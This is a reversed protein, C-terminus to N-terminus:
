ADPLPVCSATIHEKLQVVANKANKVRLTVQAKDHMHTRGISCLMLLQVAWVCISCSLKVCNFLLLIIYMICVMHLCVGRVGSLRLLLM